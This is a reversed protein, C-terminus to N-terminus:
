VIHCLGVFGEEAVVAAMTLSVKSLDILDINTEPQNLHNALKRRLSETKGLSQISDINRKWRIAIDWDSQPTTNSFSKPIYSDTTM